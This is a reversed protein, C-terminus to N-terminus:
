TLEARLQEAMAREDDSRLGAAAKDLLERARAANRLRRTYIVALMLRVPDAERSTPFARLLNEYARAANAYDGEHFLQNAVDLQRREPLVADPALALLTRFRAAAATMDHREILRLVEARAAAHQQEEASMPGAERRRSMREASDAIPADWVRADPATAARFQRRRRMQKLLFFVDMEERTLVRAALLGFCVGFGYVYGALHAAYAVNGGAGLLSENTQRLLDVVFYFLIFWAAPIHYLGIIFFIVLVRIRARPFLALFAGSVGAISGSAGIVPAQPNFLGHALAAVVGGILYFALYGVRGLRSEVANGFVWLFLLNFLIHGVGWPDHIFQYTILQWARFEGPHYHGWQAVADREFWGFYAGALGALYVLLNVMVLTENIVPRRKPPRDTSLPIFMVASTYSRSGRRGDRLGDLSAGVSRQRRRLSEGTLFM